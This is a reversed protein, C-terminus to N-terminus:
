DVCDMVTFAGISVIMLAVDRRCVIRVSICVLMEDVSSNDWVPGSADTEVVTVTSGFCGPLAGGGTGSGM